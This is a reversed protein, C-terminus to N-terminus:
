CCLTYRILFLAYNGDVAGLYVKLTKKNSRKKTKNTKTGHRKSLTAQTQPNEM